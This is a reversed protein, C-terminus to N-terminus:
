AHNVEALHARWVVDWLEDLGEPLLPETSNDRTADIERLDRILEAIQALEATDRGVARVLPEFLAINVNDGSGAPAHWRGGGGDLAGLLADYTPDGLLFVLYRLVDARSRLINLVASRARDPLDGELEAVIVCRRSVREEGSGRSTQLALFPSINEPAHEWALSDGLAQANAGEPLTLPWITTVTALGESDDPLALELSARVTQEGTQEIHLVPNAAALRQHFKEIAWTDIGEPSGDEHAEPIYPELINNLGPVDKGLGDLTASVGVRETRGELVAGFEVNRTWAAETLNASGTIVHSVGGPLDCIITKAHLGSRPDAFGEEWAQEDAGGLVETEPEVLAQLM